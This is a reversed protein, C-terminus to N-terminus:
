TGRISPPTVGGNLRAIAHIALGGLLLAACQLVAIAFTHVAPLSLIYLWGALTCAAVTGLLLALVRGSAIRGGFRAATSYACFSIVLATFLALQM